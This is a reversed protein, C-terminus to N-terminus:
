AGNHSPHDGDRAPLAGGSERRRANRLELKKFEADVIRDRAVRVHYPRSM